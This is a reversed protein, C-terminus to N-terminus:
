NKNITIKRINENSKDKEFNVYITTSPLASKIINGWEIICLGNKLINKEALIM